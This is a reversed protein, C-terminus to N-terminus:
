SIKLFINQNKLIEEQTTNKINTSSNNLRLKKKLDSKLGDNEGYILVVDKKLININQEVLYSKYIM